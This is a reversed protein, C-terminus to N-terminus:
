PLISTPHSGALEEWGDVKGLDRRADKQRVRWQRGGDGLVKMRGLTAM